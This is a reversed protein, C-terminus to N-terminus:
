SRAADAHMAAVLRDTAVELSAESQRQLRRAVGLLVGRVRRKEDELERQFTPEEPEVFAYPEQIQGIEEQTFGSRLMWALLPGDQVEVLRVFNTTRATEDVLDREGDRAILNAAACIHGQADVFVNLMGPQVTNLPFEMAQAYRVLMGLHRRRASALDARVRAREAATTQAAVVNPTVRASLEGEPARSAGLGPLPESVVAAQASAREAFALVSLGFLLAVLLPRLPNRRRM